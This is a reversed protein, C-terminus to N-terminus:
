HLHPMRSKLRAVAPGTMDLQPQLPSVSFSFFVLFHKTFQILNTIILRCNRFFNTPTPLSIVPRELMGRREKVTLGYLHPVARLFDLMAVDDLSEAWGDIHVLTMGLLDKPFHLGSHVSIISRLHWGDLDFPGEFVTTFPWLGSM